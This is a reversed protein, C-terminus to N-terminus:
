GGIKDVMDELSKLEEDSLTSLDINYHISKEPEGVREYRQKYKEPLAGDLLKSLLTDSFKPKDGVHEGEYFIPETWGSVARRRAEEELKDGAIEQAELFKEVYKEDREMWMYHLRRSIKSAKVAANLTGAEAFAALFADQRREKALTKEPKPKKKKGM